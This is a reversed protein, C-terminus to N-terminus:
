STHLAYNGPAPSAALACPMLQLLKVKEPQSSDRKQSVFGSLEQNETFFFELM